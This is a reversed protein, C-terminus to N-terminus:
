RRHYKCWYLTSTPFVFSRNQFLASYISSRGQTGPEETWRYVSIRVAFDNLALSRALSHALPRDVSRTYDMCTVRVQRGLGQKRQCTFPICLKLPQQTTSPSSFVGGVGEGGEGEMKVDEMRGGRGPSGLTAKLERNGTSSPYNRCGLLLSVAIPVLFRFRLSRIKPPHPSNTDNPHQRRAIAGFFDVM